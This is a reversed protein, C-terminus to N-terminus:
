GNPPRLLITDKSLPLDTRTRLYETVESGLNKAEFLERVSVQRMVAQKSCFHARNVKLTLTSNEIANPTISGGNAM